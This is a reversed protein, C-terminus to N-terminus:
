TPFNLEAKISETFGVPITSKIVVTAQPNYEVVDRIVSEVTRTNFYNTIPDYDTPTAVVVYAADKYALEKDITAVLNLEKEALFSEIEKDVIPSSKANISEVRSEDIDLAVVEHNQSLLVAMSLGVYGTGVVTIKM